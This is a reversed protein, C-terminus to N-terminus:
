KRPRMRWAMTGASRAQLGRACDLLLQPRTRRPWHDPVYGDDSPSSNPRSSARRRAEGATERPRECCHNGVSARDEECDSFAKYFIVGIRRAIGSVLERQRCGLRWRHNRRGRRCLRAGLAAAGDGATVAVQRTSESFEDFSTSYRTYGGMLTAKADVAAPVPMDAALQGSAVFGSAVNRMTSSRSRFARAWQCGLELSWQNGGTPPASAGSDSEEAKFYPHTILAGNNSGANTRCVRQQRRRSARYGRPEKACEERARSRPARLKVLCVSIPDAM